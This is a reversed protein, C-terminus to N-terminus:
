PSQQATRLFPDDMLDAAPDATRGPRRVATALGIRELTWIAMWTMDIEWWRQGHRACSARHHHANHWGEGFTLLAAWWCNRSLDRTDHPRYGFHHSASNVLWTAHYVLVLRVPIGYVLWSWGGVAFLGVALAIQLAPFHRHLWLFYPDAMLDKARKCVAAESPVRVFLWACHAWWFGRRANHPDGDQDSHRHHQRHQGVWEIPGGQMALAGCTALVRRLWRPAVFSNHSLLRHYGLTIGLWLTIAYLAAAVAIAGPTPEVVLVGLCGLHFVALGIRKEWSPVWDADHVGNVM